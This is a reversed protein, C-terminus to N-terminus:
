GVHTDARSESKDEEAQQSDDRVKGRICDDRIDDQPLQVDEQSKGKCCFM